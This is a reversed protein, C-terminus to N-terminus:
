QQPLEPAPAPPVQVAYGAENASQVVDSAAAQGAEGQSQLQKVLATAQGEIATQTAQDVQAPAPLQRFAEAAVTAAAEPSDSAVKRGLDLKEQGQETSQDVSSALIAPFTIGCLLAFFALRRHDDLKSNAAVYVSLGAAIAGLLAYLITKAWPILPIAFTVLNGDHKLLAQIATALAGGIAGFVLVVVVDDHAELWARVSQLIGNM